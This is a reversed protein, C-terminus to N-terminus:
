DITLHLLGHQNARWNFKLYFIIKENRVSEIGCVCIAHGLLLILKEEATAVM